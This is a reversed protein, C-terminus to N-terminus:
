TLAWRTFAAAASTTLLFVAFNIWGRTALGVCPVDLKEAKIVLLVPRVRGDEAVLAWGGGNPVIRRVRRAIGPQGGDLSTVTGAALDVSEVMGWHSINDVQFVDGPGFTRPDPRREIANHANGFEVLLTEAQGMLPQYPVGMGRGRYGARAYNALQFMACSSLGDPYPKGAAIQWAPTDYPAIGELYKAQTATGYDSPAYSAAIEVLTSPCGM